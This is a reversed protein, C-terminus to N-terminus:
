EPKHDCSFMWPIGYRDTCMGFGPAWFTEQFPMQVSGGQAMANFMREAEAKEKVNISIAIGQPKQYHDPPDAGMIIYDGLQLTSHMVRDHIEAPFQEKMPSEGWTTKFVVKGGLTEEYFKFAEACAGDFTLYASVQM